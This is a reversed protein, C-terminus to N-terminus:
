AIFYISHAMVGYDLIVEEPRTYIPDIYNSFETIRNTIEEKVSLRPRDLGDFM